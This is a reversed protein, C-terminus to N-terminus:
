FIFPPCLSKTMNSKTDHSMRLLLYFLSLFFLSFSSRTSPTFYILDIVMFVGIQENPHVGVLSKM